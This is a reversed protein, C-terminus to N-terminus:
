LVLLTTVALKVAPIAPLSLSLVTFGVKVAVPLVIEM